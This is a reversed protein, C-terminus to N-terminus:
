KSSMCVSLAQALEPIEREQCKFGEACTGDPGCLYPKFRKEVSLDASDPVCVTPIPPAFYMNYPDSICSEGPACANEDAPDCTQLVPAALSLRAMALAFGLSLTKVSAM